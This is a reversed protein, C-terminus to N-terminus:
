LDAQYGDDALVPRLERSDHEADRSAAMYAEYAQRSDFSALVPATQLWRTPTDELYNGISSYPYAFWSVPNRHIYRSVAALYTSDPLRVARYRSEFLQGSRQYKTNFYRSYATMAGRMLRQMGGEVKQYLLLHFHNGMLCYALMEVDGSLKQYTVGASNKAPTDSLYREFLSIFFAFDSNDLFIPQKSAGRTFVHYYSLPVDVKLVNRRPM